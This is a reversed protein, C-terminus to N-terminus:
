KETTNLKQGSCSIKVWKSNIGWLSYFDLFDDWAENNVEYLLDKDIDLKDMFEQLVENEFIFCDDVSECKGPRDSALWIYSVRDGLIMCDLLWPKENFCENKKEEDSKHHFMIFCTIEEPLNWHKALSVGLDVHTFGYEEREMEYLEKIRFTFLYERAITIYEEDYIYMLAIRGLDHLLGGMFAMEVLEKDRKTRIRKAVLRRTVSATQLLHVWVFKQEESATKVNFANMVSLGLALNKVSHYGLLAVAREIDTIKSTFGYFASNVVKLLQAVLSADTKVVKVLDSVGSDPDEVIKLIKITVEPLTPLKKIHKAMISDLGEGAYTM